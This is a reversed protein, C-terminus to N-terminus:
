RFIYSTTPAAWFYVLSASVRQFTVWSWRFLRRSEGSAWWHSSSSSLVSLRYTIRIVSSRIFPSQDAYLLCNGLSEVFIGSPLRECIVIMYLKELMLTWTRGHYNGRTDATWGNSSQYMVVCCLANMYIYAFMDPVRWDETWQILFRFLRSICSEWVLSWCAQKILLCYVLGTVLSM